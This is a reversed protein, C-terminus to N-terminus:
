VFGIIHDKKQSQLWSLLKHMGPSQGNWVIVILDSKSVFLVDRVSPMQAVIPLQEQTADVFTASNEELINLMKESVDYPGYGVPIVRQGARFLMEAALEDVTGFTGCYWTTTPDMYPTLLNRLRRIARNPEVDMSGTVAINLSTRDPLRVSRSNRRVEYRTLTERTAETLSTRLTAALKRRDYFLTRINSIDFPLRSGEQSIAITPKQLAAAFGMEWMVNPNSDTVDAICIAASRIEALLDETIVGAARVEDLRSCSVNEGATANNVALKISDYVDDFEAKFPMIVFCKLATDTTM